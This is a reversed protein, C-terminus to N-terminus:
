QSFFPFNRRTPWAFPLIESRRVSHLLSGHIKRGRESFAGLSFRQVLLLRRMGSGRHSLLFPPRTESSRPCRRLAGFSFERRFFRKSSCTRGKAESLLFHFPTSRLLPPRQRSPPPLVFNETPEAHFLFVSESTLLLRSPARRQGCCDRFLSLLLIAHWSERKEAAGVQSFFIMLNCRGPRKGGGSVPM